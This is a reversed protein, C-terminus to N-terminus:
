SRGKGGRSGSLRERAVTKNINWNMTTKARFLHWPLLPTRVLARGNSLDFDYNQLRDLFINAATLPLFAKHSALPLTPLLQSCHAAHVHASSAIDHVVDKIKNPHEGRIIDQQSIGAPVYHSPSEAALM